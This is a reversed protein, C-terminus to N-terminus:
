VAMKMKIAPHCTYSKLEFDSYELEEINLKNNKIKLIPFPKPKRKIQETMENIHNNYIHADGINHIFEYPKLGTLHAFIYTLLSGSAINFPVGLGMDASRQYMSCSLKDGNVYFQYLVHCPPLCMEKLQCPNWGNLIIRRSNPNNKILDLCEKVQDIGKNTYDSDPGTYEANYHRWQFGYIPGCDGESYNNLGISDLYERSSNGKWINVKKAELEKSNTRGNLFWLLEEIIGRLFMKKTTLLPFSYEINFRHQLGFVSKTGIGTRDDKNNGNNLIYEINYLYQYEPHTNNYNMNCIIRSVSKSSKYNQYIRYEYNIDNETLIDSNYEIYYNDLEENFFTDCDCNLHVKTLYIKDIQNENIFYNYIQEGGIIFINQYKNYIYKSEVLLNLYEEISKVYFLNNEPESKKETTSLVINIRNVLPKKISEFTKRGMLVINQKSSDTVNTTIEKFYKLDAKLKWPISNDKGIGHNLCNAVIISISM